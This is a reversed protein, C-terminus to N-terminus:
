KKSEEKSTSATEQSLHLTFSRSIGYETILFVVKDRYIRLVKGKEVRDHERFAFPRGSNGADECLAIKDADDFLVGVLKLNEVFPLGTLSVSNPIVPKFPDRGTGRYRIVRRKVSEQRDKKIRNELIPEKNEQIIESSTKQIRASVTTISPKEEPNKVLTEPQLAKKPKASMDTNEALASEPETNSLLSSFVYGTTGNSRVKYWKNKLAIVAVKDGLSFKGLVRSNTAPQSRFNVNNRCIYMNTSAGDPIPPTKTKQPVSPQNKVSAVGTAKEPIVAAPPEKISFTNEPSVNERADKVARHEISQLDVDYSPVKYFQYDLSLGHGSTWLIAKKKDQQSLYLSLSSGRTFAVNFNSETNEPNIDVKLDLTPQGTTSSETISVKKFATGGPLKLSEDKLGSRANQISLIVSSGKRNVSGKVERTFEFALECIHGRQLLRVNQLLGHVSESSAIKASAPTISNTHAQMHQTTNWNFVTVPKTSLLAMWKNNKRLAKVPVTVNEELHIIIEVSSGSKEEASISQLPVTAPFKSYSFDSLGYVCDALKATVTKGSGSFVASFPADASFSIAIGREGGIVSIESIVPLSYGAACLSTIVVISLQLKNLRCTKLSRILEM